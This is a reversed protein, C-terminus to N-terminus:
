YKSVFVWLYVYIFILLLLSRIYFFKRGNERECFFFHRYLLCFWEELRFHEGSFMQCKWWGRREELIIMWGDESSPIFDNTDEEKLSVSPTRAFNFRNFISSTTTEFWSDMRRFLRQFFFLSSSFDSPKVLTCFSKLSHPPSSRLNENFKERPFTIPRRRQASISLPYLSKLSERASFLGPEYWKSKPHLLIEFAKQSGNVSNARTDYQNNEYIPSIEILLLLSTLFRQIPHFFLFFPIIIRNLKILFFYFYWIKPWKYFILCSNELLIGNTTFKKLIVLILSHFYVFDIYIHLLFKQFM